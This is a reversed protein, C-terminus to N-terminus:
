GHSRAGKLGTTEAMNVLNEVALRFSPEGGKATYRIRVIVDTLSGLM